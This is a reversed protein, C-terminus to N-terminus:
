FRKMLRDLYDREIVPRSPDAARRRLEDYIERAREMQGEDPIQVDGTDVGTANPMPRGFPDRLPNQTRTSDARGRARQDGEGSGQQMMQDALSRAGERLQDLAQGQPGVAQGPANRNLADLADRMSREARGLAGPIDGMSEGLRRMMEGLSRRLADQDGAIDGDDGDDGDGQDGPQGQQGPQQQGRQGRQGQQGRQGRQGKNSQRFSRDLLDRQRRAMEQLGQMAQNMESDGDAMDSDDDMIGARMNELMQQLQNLLAQAQERQGRRALDRAKDLMRQLDRRDITQVNRDRPIREARQPNNLAQQMMSDLFRDLAQQMEDILRQLEPDPANRALADRLAQEAARLDRERLGVEGEEIRIATDWLLSQVPDIATDEGEYTLRARAAMLAMFVVTDDGYMRPLAAIRALAQGVERRKDPDQVLIKRQEVIARAVPHSFNREPLPMTVPESLGTQGLADTAELQITVSLGAWPHATLDHYSTGQADRRKGPLSLGLEIPALEPKDARRILARAAELGYDDKATYDLRLAARTTRGPPQRFAITPPQDPVIQLPWGALERRGQVVSLRDGATLTAEVRFSGSEIPVFPTTRGAVALSPAARLGGAQALLTSGTPVVLSQDRPVAGAFIPPLGTYSPPTIWVDLTTPVGAGRGLGPMLARGVRDAGDFGAFLVAILLSLALGARLAIPDRPGWGGAPVGVKLARAQAAMRALHAQWLARTAADGGAPRDELATLPRHALRNATELRRRARALSPWRVGGLGRVLAIALAVGFGALVAGHLWPNLEPLVDALALVLFLGVVALAPWLAPWAAEWLLAAWALRYRRAPVGSDGSKSGIV